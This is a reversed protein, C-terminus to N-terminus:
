KVMVKVTKVTGDALHKRVINLGKRLSNQRVGNVSFIEDYAVASAANVGDIGVTEADYKKSEEGNNLIYIDYVQAKSSGSVQAVRVYYEGATEYSVRTKKYYRQTTAMKLTGISDWKEGDASVQIELNPEGTGGNTVYVVVDFPAAYKGTTEISATYPNNNAKGGFTIKGKTPIGGIMDEATEAFYGTAGNGVAAEGGSTLEGTLVQGASKLIWGNETLPNVIKVANPDPKYYYVISDNGQSDKVTETHDVEDSYYNWSSKGWFYYAKAAGTGGAEADNVFWDAENADFHALTDIRITQANLSNIAVYDGALESPVFGEATAFAYIFTPEEKLVIPETYKQAKAANKEMNYSYYITAGETACSFTVVSNDANKEIAIAPKAAQSMIAVDLSATASQLYGDAVAMAKVTAASTLTFPETYVTSATTPETGDITYYVTAAKNGETITVVTEQNKNEQSIVPTTVATVKAKSAAVVSVANSLFVPLIEFNATELNDSSFPLYIYSNRDPNHQHIAVADGAKALVKDNAFYSGLSVGALTGDTLLELGAAVDLDKFLANEADEAAVTAVLETTTVPAGYGWTEYLSSNMNIVPAYAVASKLVPVLADTPAVSPAIIIADYTQLSDLTIAEAPNVMTLEVGDSGSLFTYAYDEVNSVYAVKKAEEVPPTGGDGVTIFYIHCGNSNYIQIDFTGDENPTDTADVPVLWTQEQYTTPKAVENGDPDKLKTGSTGHGIYLEVGRADSMKHSEVGMKITTGPEVHPIVFYNKKSSGLWLYSPGEYPGFAADSANAVQYNVAIALSRSTTNTYYLGELEKIVNGNATLTVESDTKGAATVEWFCNDKSLDTPESATAKEIDSWDSGAKLDAVTGASWKRFDWSKKYTTQANAGLALVFAFALLLVKKM